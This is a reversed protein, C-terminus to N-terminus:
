SPAPPDADPRHPWPSWLPQLARLPGFVRWLVLLVVAYALLGGITMWSQNPHSEPWGTVPMPLLVLLVPAAIAISGTVGLVMNRAAPGELHPDALRLLALGTPLTGTMTGFLVLAHSFPKEPFARRSLWITVAITAVVGVIGLVLIPVMADGVRDPRVASIACVAGLDVAIGAVRGMLRDDVFNSWRTRNAITRAGMAVLLALLYHFGFLIGVKQPDGALAVAGMLIGWAGLYVVGVLSLQVTLLDMEGSDPEEALTSETTQPARAATVLEGQTWGLRRALHFYLVGFVTCFAYGLTAMILGIQAGEVMGMSEWAKGLSMAQGPGQSFGLAVMIGTGPHLEGIGFNWALVVLLGVLGQVMAIFPIAFAISRAGDPIAAGSRKEGKRLGMAVFVIALSHYVIQELLATNLPLVGLVADGLLFGALGAVLVPPFALARVLPVTRHIWRAGILLLAIFLLTEVSGGKWYDM